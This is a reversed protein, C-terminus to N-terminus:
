PEIVQRSAGTAAAARREVWEYVFCCGAGFAAGVLWGGLVDSAWHLDLYVRSFGVLIVVLASVSTILRPAVRTRVAIYSLVIAVASSGAAHGSPFSFGMAAVIGGVPRMLQLDRKMMGAFEASALSAYVLLAIWGKNHRFLRWGVLAGLPILAEKAGLQTLVRFLAVLAPSRHELVWHRISSDVGAVGGELVLSGVKTFVYGIVLCTAALLLLLREERIRNRRGM